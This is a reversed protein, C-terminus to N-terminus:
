LSFSFVLSLHSVAGLHARPHAASSSSSPASARPLPVPSRIIVLFHRRHLQFVIARRRVPAAPLKPEPTNHLEPPQHLTTACSVSSSRRCSVKPPAIWRSTISVQAASDPSERARPPQSSVAPLLPWPAFARRCCEPSSRSQLDCHAALQSSRLPASAVLPSPLLARRRTLCQGTRRYSTAVASARPLPPPSQHRPAPDPSPPSSCLSHSLSSLTSFIQHM